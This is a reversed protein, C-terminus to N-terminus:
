QKANKPPEPQYMLFMSATNINSAAIANLLIALGQFVIKAIYAVM